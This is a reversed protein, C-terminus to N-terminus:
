TDLNQIEIKSKPAANTLVCEVLYQPVLKIPKAQNSWVFTNPYGKSMLAKIHSKIGLPFLLGYFISRCPRFM